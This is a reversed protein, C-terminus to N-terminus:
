IDYTYISKLHTANEYHSPHRPFMKQEDFKNLVTYVSEIYM